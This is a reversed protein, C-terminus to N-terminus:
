QGLELIRAKPKKRKVEVLEGLELNVGLVARKRAVGEDLGTKGYLGVVLVSWVVDGIALSKKGFYPSGHAGSCVPRLGQEHDNVVLM